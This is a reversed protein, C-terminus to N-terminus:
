VYLRAGSYRQSSSSRPRYSVGAWPLSQFRGMRCSIRWQPPPVVVSITKPTQVSWVTLTITWHQHYPTEQVSCTM